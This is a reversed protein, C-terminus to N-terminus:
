AGLDATARQSFEDLIKTAKQRIMGAGLTAVKGGIEYTGTVSVTTGDTDDTASKALTVLADITIRSAIQRDEGAAKIRIREPEQVDVVSVDLNARLKFPGLRDMLVATYKDLPSLEQVDDIVSVWSVLRHVDTLVKWCGEPTAGVAFTREFNTAPM